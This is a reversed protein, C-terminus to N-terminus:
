SAAPKSCVFIENTSPYALAYREVDAPAFDATSLVEVAFGAGELRQRIDAGYLRVHDEQKFHQLREAPTRIAPDEYTADGYMPVLVVAVGGPALVRYLEAMAKRDDEIHELVHSCWILTFADDDLPLDTLDMQRMAEPASLDASLYEGSISRLWREIVREPAFHLTRASATLRQKLVFFAFRHRESSGCSPCLDTPAPKNPRFRRDFAGGTWGCAPCSKGAGRSLRFLTARRKVERLVRRILTKM